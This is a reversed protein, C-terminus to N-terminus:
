EEQSGNQMEKRRQEKEAVRANSPISYRERNGQVEKEKIRGVGGKNTSARLTRREVM